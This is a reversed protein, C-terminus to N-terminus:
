RTLTGRGLIARDTLQARPEAGDRLRELEDVMLSFFRPQAEVTMGGIHPSLFVNRMARLPSDVAIPEPDHADLGFWADGRAAKEVLADRDVVVGRSVNVFVADPPATRARARRDHGDDHADRTGPVRRDRM